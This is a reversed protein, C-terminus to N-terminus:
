ASKGESCLQVCEFTSTYARQNAPKLQPLLTSLLYILYCEVHVSVCYPKDILIYIHIYPKDIMSTILPNIIQAELEILLQKLYEFQAEVIEGM